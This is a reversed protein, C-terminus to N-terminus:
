LAKAAAFGTAADPFYAFRPRRKSGAPMAELRMAGYRRAFPGWEVNLPNNNRTARTGAPGFGERRAMAATFTMKM